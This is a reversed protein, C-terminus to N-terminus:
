YEDLRTETGEAPNANGEEEEVLGLEQEARDHADSSDLGEEVATNYIERYEPNSILTDHRSEHDINTVDWEDWDTPDLDPM